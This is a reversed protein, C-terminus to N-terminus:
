TAAPKPPIVYKLSFIYNDNVRDMRSYPMYNIILRVPKNPYENDIHQKIMWLHVLDADAEYKLKIQFSCKDSSHLYEDSIWTEKNPFQGLVVPNNNIFIM